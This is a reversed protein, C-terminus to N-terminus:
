STDASRLRINVDVPEILYHTAAEVQTKFHPDQMSNQVLYNFYRNLSWDRGGFYNEKRVKNYYASLARQFPDRVFMFGFTYNRFVEDKMTVPRTKPVLRDFVQHQSNATTNRDHFLPWFLAGRTSTGTKPVRCEYYHYPTFLTISKIDEATFNLLEKECFLKLHRLRLFQVKEFDSEKNELDILYSWNEPFLQEFDTVTLKENSKFTFNTVTALM